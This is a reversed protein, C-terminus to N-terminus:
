GELKWLCEEYYFTLIVQYQIGENAILCCFLISEQKDRSYKIGDIKYSKESSDSAIFRFYIPLFRGDMAFNAVVAVPQNSTFRNNHKYDFSYNFIM